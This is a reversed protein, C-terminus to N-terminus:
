EFFGNAVKGGMLEVGGIALGVTLDLRVRWHFCPWGAPPALLCAFFQTKSAQSM